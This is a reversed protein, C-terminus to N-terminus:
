SSGARPADVKAVSIFSSSKGQAIDALSGETTLCYLTRGNRGGLQCAVAHRGPFDIRHTIEGGELVRLFCGQSFSSVWIGDESDVCIGDPHIKDFQAFMRRNSLTGDADVDFSTLRHALTEAVILKAGDDMLVMGNPFALDDAACQSSGDPAVSFIKSPSPEQGAFLDFDYGGVFAWGNSGVVMDNIEIEVLSKLDAHVKAVGNSVRYIQRDKMSAVLLTDDPLFGLGSPLGQINAVVRKNGSENIAFVTCDRIDSVWLEGDKWRPGELFRFGSLWEKSDLTSVAL